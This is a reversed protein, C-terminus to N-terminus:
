RRGAVGELAGGELRYLRWDREANEDWEFVPVAGLKEYFGVAKKNFGYVALELRPSELDITERALAGMLLAGVSRGRYAPKVFMQDLYVVPRALGSSYTPFYLAFGVMGHEDDAVLLRYRPNPGFGDELLRAAKEAEPRPVDLYDNLDGFLALFMKEDGPAAKRVTFEPM